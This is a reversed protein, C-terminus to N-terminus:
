KERVALAAHAPRLGLERFITTARLTQDTTLKKQERCDHACAKLRYNTGWPQEEVTVSVASDPLWLPSTAAIKQM